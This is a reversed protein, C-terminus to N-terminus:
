TGHEVVNQQVLRDDPELALRREFLVADGGIDDDAAHAAAGVEAPEDRGEHPVFQLPLVIDFEDADLRRAAGRHRAAFIGIIEAIRRPDRRKGLHIRQAAAEHRRRAVRAAQAIVAHAGNDRLEAVVPIEAGHRDLLALHELRRDHEGLALADQGRGLTRVGDAYRDVLREAAFLLPLFLGDEESQRPRSVEIKGGVLLIVVARHRVGDGCVLVEGLSKRGNGVDGDVLADSFDDQKLDRTRVGRCRSRFKCCVWDGRLPSGRRPPNPRPSPLVWSRKTGSRTAAPCITRASEKRFARQGQQRGSRKGFFCQVSKQSGQPILASPPPIYSPM